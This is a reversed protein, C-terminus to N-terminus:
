TFALEQIWYGIPQKKQTRRGVQPSPAGLMRIPTPSRQIKPFPSPPMVNAQVMVSEGACLVGSKKADTDLRPLKTTMMTM